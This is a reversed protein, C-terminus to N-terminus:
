QVFRALMQLPLIDRYSVSSKHHLESSPLGIENEIAIPSVRGDLPGIMYNRPMLRLARTIPSM